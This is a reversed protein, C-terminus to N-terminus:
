ISIYIYIYIYIYIIPGNSAADEAVTEQIHDGCLAQTGILQKEWVVPYARKTSSNTAHRRTISTRTSKDFTSALYTVDTLNTNFQRTSGKSMTPPLCNATLQKCGRLKAAACSKLRCALKCTWDVAM